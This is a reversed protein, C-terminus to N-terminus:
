EVCRVNDNVKLIIDRQRRLDVMTAAGEAEADVLQRHADKLRQTGNAEKDM